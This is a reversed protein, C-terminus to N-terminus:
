LEVREIVTDGSEIRIPWGKADVYAVVSESNHEAVVKHAALKKGRVQIEAPGEYTTTRIDWQLQDLDFIFAKCSDGKKPIDRLFWFESPVARPSSASLEVKHRKYGDGSDRFASAGEADFDVNTQRKKVPNVGTMTQFMHRPTGDKAYESRTRVYVKQRGQKMMMLLEVVKSGDTELRQTLSATGVDHGQFRVAYKQQALAVSAFLACVTLFVTKM